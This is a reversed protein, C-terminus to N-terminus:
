KCVEDQPVNEKYQRVQEKHRQVYEGDQYVLEKNNNLATCYSVTASLHKIRLDHSPISFDFLWGVYTHRNSM